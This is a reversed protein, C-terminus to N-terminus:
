AQSHYFAYGNRGNQKVQYLALDADRYAEDTQPVCDEFAVGISLTVAPIGNEEKSLKTRIESLRAELMPKMDSKVSKMLVAFEDGGIRCIIDNSRFAEKLTNAVRILVQDGVDHGYRDNYLKFEDVDFLVITKYLGQRRRDDFERRNHLGTLSDHTAEYSLQNRIYLNEQYISNYTDSIFQLEYCGKLPLEENKQLSKIIMRQPKLIQFYGFIIISALLLIVIFVLWTQYTILNRLNMTRKNQMAIGKSTVTQLCESVQERIAARSDEYAASYLLQQAKKQKTAPPLASDEDKLTIQLLDEHFDEPSMNLSSVYLLMAYYEDFELTRSKQNAELLMEYDAADGLKEVTELALERRKTTHVEEFYNDLYIRRGTSVFARSSITLYASADEFSTLSTQISELNQSATVSEDYLSFINIISSFVMVAFVVSIAIIAIGAHQLKIGGIGNKRRDTTM